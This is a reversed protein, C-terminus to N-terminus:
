LADLVTRVTLVMVILKLGRETDTGAVCDVPTCTVSESAAGVPPKVTLRAM